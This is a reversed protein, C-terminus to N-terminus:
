LRDLVHEKHFLITQKFTNELSAFSRQKSVRQVNHKILLIHNIRKHQRMWTHKNQKTKDVKNTQTERFLYNCYRFVFFSWFTVDLFRSRSDWAPCRGGERNTNVSNLVTVKFVDKAWGRFSEDQGSLEDGEGMSLITQAGLERLHDDM